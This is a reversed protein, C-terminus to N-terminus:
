YSVLVLSDLPIILLFHGLGYPMKRVVRRGKVFWYPVKTWRSRSLRRGFYEWPILRVRFLCPFIDVSFCLSVVSVQRSLRQLLSVVLCASLQILFLVFSSHSLLIVFICLVIPARESQVSVKARSVTVIRSLLLSRLFTATLFYSFLTVRSLTRM